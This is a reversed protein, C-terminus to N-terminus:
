IEALDDSFLVSVQRESLLAVRRACPRDCKEFEVESFSRSGGQSLCTADGELYDRSSNPTVEANFKMLYNLSIQLGTDIEYIYDDHLDPVGPM